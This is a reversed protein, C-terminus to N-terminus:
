DAADQLSTLDFVLFYHSQFDEIPLAPFGENCQIAKLTTVHPRCPSTANLLFNARVSRDTELDRLHFQQYNLPNKHFSGAVASNTKMGVAIRRSPFNNFDNNNGHSRLSCTGNGSEM